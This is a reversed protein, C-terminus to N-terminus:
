SQRIAFEAPRLIGARRLSSGAGLPLHRRLGSGAGLPSNRSRINKKLCTPNKVGWGPPMQKTVSKQVCHPREKNM